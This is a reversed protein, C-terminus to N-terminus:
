STKKRRTKNRRRKRLEIRKIGKSKWKRTLKTKLNRMTRKKDKIRRGGVRRLRTLRRRGGM